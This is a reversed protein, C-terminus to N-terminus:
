LYYIGSGDDPGIVRHRKHDWIWVLVTADASGSVIIANALTLEDDSYALCTVVDWHGFICQVLKGLSFFCCCYNLM